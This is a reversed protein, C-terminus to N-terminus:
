NAKSQDYMHVDQQPYPISINEQDFRKKILETVDWYVGWYDSTKTWPRVIFNVSSDALESVAIAPAPDKLVRPDNALIEELVGKAKDIDDEYGIGAIMDVRRIDNATTNVIVDGLISGNPVFIKQNDPTALETHFINISKVTGSTGAITVYDGNSFFRYMILMVGAAFNALSDKLALGIALGAAGLVALFSTANIGAQNLAAVIVAMLLTYYLLNKAFSRVTSDIEKKELVKDLMSVLRKAIWRGVALVAIAILIRVGYTTLWLEITAWLSDM